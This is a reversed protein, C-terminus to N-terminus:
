LFMDGGNEPNFFLCLLFGAHLLYCPPSQAPKKSPMNKLGSLPSSTNRQFTLQNVVSYVRINNIDWFVTSKMVVAALVEFGLYL